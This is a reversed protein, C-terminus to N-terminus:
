RATRLLRCGLSCIYINGLCSVRLGDITLSTPQEALENQGLAHLLSGLHLGMMHRFM